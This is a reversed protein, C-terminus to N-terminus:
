KLHKNSIYEREEMFISMISKPDYKFERLYDEGEWLKEICFKVDDTYQQVDEKEHKLYSKLDGKLVGFQVYNGDKDWHAEGIQDHAMKNRFERCADIKKTLQKDGLGLKNNMFLLPENFLKVKHLMSIKSLLAYGFGRLEKQFILNTFVQDFKGELHIFKSIIEGRLQYEKVKFKEFPDEM